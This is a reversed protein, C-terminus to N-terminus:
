LATAPRKAYSCTWDVQSQTDPVQLRRASSLMAFTSEFPVGLHILVGAAVLGSRGIGGRCHVYAPEGSAVLSAIKQFLANAAAISAPVGRDVVPFAHYTIGNKSCLEAEETIGLEYVEHDELLSVVHRIGSQSWSAIEDALWDGARPRPGFALRHPEIEQVWYVDSSNM